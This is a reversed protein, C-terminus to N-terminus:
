RIAECKDLIDRIKQSLEAISFPKQIFGNCGKQMIDIAQGNIAYGSSLLVPLQPRIERLRDFTQNGDMGPMIMDLIVLHIADGERAVIDAAEMGGSAVIVRYGLKKLMASAVMRIMEEDDVLLITESGTIIQDTVVTEPAAQKGSAPLYIDFTAGHGPESYVTITGGHNQVIGFASALGLGTGREKEKTTFFPDFIKQQTDADMGIGTDTISVKIYAGAEIHHPTCFSADLSVAATKLFLDGGTAMAHMANIFINLMVQEIQRRDVEVILLSNQFEQHLQIEKRTRGFMAATDALLKNIDIPAIEYKGGRALGLLRATLDRASNVYNEIALIQERHPAPIEQDVKMLSAYGQIGTLLNNFDHAIGGALTGVAEMKQARQFAEEMKQNETIDVAIQLRVLRGDTWEIARDYNIYWRNSVPNRGKWSIVGTPRGRDDVLQRNTCNPCPGTEDRFAEWCIEGTMDRGFSEIMNRNMFLIEHTQMDAVYITADISDLVTLFRQHSDSLAKEAKVRDTIDTYVAVVGKLVGDVLIPSGAAIVNLPTGDKRYRVTEFAEVRRGSLVQRTKSGAEDKRVQGAVLDDLQRGLTEEPLYGFMKEAGPNWDVVRHRDDMTVIADPAHYLVSELFMRRERIEEQAQRIATIDRVYEVVSTVHGATDHIPFARVEQLRGDAPNVMERSISEGSAFVPAASCDECPAALNKFRGYCTHQRGDPPPTIDDHGQNNTFLINYDCDVVILLDPVADLLSQLLQHATERENGIRRRETVDALTVLARQDKLFTGRFEIDKVTGDMCVVKFERVAHPTGRASSWDAMVRRRYDPDPYARAFWDDLGNLDERTYGTLEYFGKNTMLLRGDSGWVTIGLAINDFLSELLENQHRLNEQVEIEATIDHAVAYTLGQEALPHSVWNLWRYDGNKCRYRNKFNIVKEGKQLREELIAQTPAIDDPHIFAAFPRDLLEAERYGLTAEFAPNIKLFTGTRIDAICLMDLSMTFIAQLEAEARRLESIDLFGGVLGAVQGQEDRFVDKYFIVPRHAGHRDRVEFEYIQRTPNRILALDKQHYVAAHAGPWLEEVTKGRIQEPTVGMLESFAPNCGVYRGQVDKYFVPTPIAALLSDTFQLNRKLEAEVGALRRNEAELQRIRETLEDYSPTNTM